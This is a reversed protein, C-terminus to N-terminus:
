SSVAPTEVPPDVPEDAPPPPPTWIPTAEIPPLTPTETPLPAPASTPTDTPLPEPTPPEATPPPLTPTATPPIIEPTWTPAPELTPAPPEPTWTATAEEPPRNEVFVRVRAEYQAGKADRVIVRLTHPGTELGTTDWVGLQGNVVPTGVPGFIPPSFAGPNHSVGYQLEYSVFDPVSASGVVPVVGSVLLGDPPDVIAVQFQTPDTVIPAGPPPQAIGHQEAWDRYEPPYVKFVRDEIQDAPTFETALENTGRVMKLKQWLDKEKPLPPRDEAFWRTRREPCVESPLTGTDACVEFQRVGPPPTFPMAPEGAHAITMFENWIPGAGAVGSVNQMPSNDSNGVWVGTVLQPTYGMTLNDRYDNTTGTKAAVPRDALHLVSNTGFAPARAENDSLVDTILFADVPSIVAQGNADQCPRESGQECVINGESDTIKRITVPPVRVGGNALTAFADTLEILPIEGAGLSLSLGFDPRTLTTIGLRGMLDLYQPLTAAALARVAPINYSNALATRLTVLGHEQGDYNTPVYPANAGDPFASQIDAVLSGATWADSRPRGPMEFTSLYVFPKTSSGPQRPALAMNVQGDIEVNDFDASGVLAVVEGTQPQMSVLAGNSVNRDALAAVQQRVIREAEAQLRPDLTTTVNYGSRYLGEPGFMQELQQRVYFTFHPSKLDFQLPEYVLAEAWAADAQAQSIDGQEVMLGLVVAQREKARDPHTYPDYYAPAQPLGALLTAEPLTLDAADKGFFTEAAADIGYALSGYYVENLYLELIEDKSYRRTIEAALIAEKFKRTFTQEPTLLVRKVLQQTITSGGAVVDREQIAYYLARALAVPDIGPHRYFNADETSITAQVVFPSMRELPVEIRRGANPDFTENLLNGERDYIRTSQFSSARQRLENPSPLDRAIASYAILLVASVLAGLTVFAFIGSVVGPWFRNGATQRSSAKPSKPQPAQIPQLEYM